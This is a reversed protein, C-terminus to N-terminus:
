AAVKLSVSANGSASSQGYPGFQATEFKQAGMAALGGFLFALARGGMEGVVFKTYDPFWEWCEAVKGELMLQIFKKDAEVREPSPWEAPGRVLKHAFSSSAAIVGRRGTKRCARDVAQGVKYSEEIDAALVVPINVIPITADPDMYHVPVWTGYDWSYHETSNAIIPYGLAKVEDIIALGLEPDGKYDYHEGSIMDPAEQAVCYGEHRAVTSSHWNFTSVYHTSAIVMVDPKDRRIDEGMAIIGKVLEKGFDPVLEPKGLRPAHPVVIGRYLGGAM